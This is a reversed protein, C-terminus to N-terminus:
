MTVGARSFSGMKSIRPAGSFTDSASLLSCIYMAMRVPPRNSSGSWKTSTSRFFGMTGGLGRSAKEETGAESHLLLDQLPVAVAEVVGLGSIYPNPPLKLLM